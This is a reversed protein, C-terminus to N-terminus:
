IRLLPFLIEPIVEFVALVFSGETMLPYSIILLCPKLRIDGQSDLCITVTQLCDLHLFPLGDCACGAEFIATSNKVKVVLFCGCCPLLDRYTSFIVISMYMFGVQRSCKSPDLFTQPLSDMLILWDGGLFISTRQQQQQQHHHHTTGFLIIPKDIFSFISNNNNKNENHTNHFDALWCCLRCIEEFFNWCFNDKNTPPIRTAALRVVRLIGQLDFYDDQNQRQGM